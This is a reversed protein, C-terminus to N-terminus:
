NKRLIIASLLTVLLGIPLPELFTIATSILPNKYMEKFQEMEATKRTIEEAPTGAKKMQEISYQVYQDMFDTMLTHSVIQWALVYIASSILTIILGVLFGRGFTLRGEGERERYAKVGMFVFVMSLLIGAYGFLEGNEFKGPNNHYYLGTMLMLVAGVAGSLLGYRLIIKKM